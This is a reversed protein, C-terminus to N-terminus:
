SGWRSPRIPCDALFRTLSRASNGSNRGSYMQQGFRRDCYTVLLKSKARTLSVYLLRREDDLQEGQGPILEDEAASVIVGRSTLGKAKHMTMIAIGEGDNTPEASGVTTALIQVLERLNSCGANEITSQVYQITAERVMEDSIAADGFRSLAATLGESTSADESSEILEEAAQKAIELQMMASKIRDGFRPILSADETVLAAIKSFRERRKLALEFLAGIAKAGIGPTLQLWTRISLSDFEDVIIRLVSFFRRSEHHNFPEDTGKSVPIGAKRLADGIPGSYAGNRDNRLLVLIESPKWGEEEILQNCIAAIGEAEQSQDIFRLIEVVGDGADLRAILEKPERDYDLNAIFNALKIIERDCRMCTVLPFSASPEYEDGFKRIGDPFAHRFGYISQDDDGAVFLKSRCGVILKILGLDCSNLDQYEDVLVHDFDSELSFNSSQEISRKVQYVMESRMTYGYATRHAEWAGLFKPDIFQEEWGPREATLTDWDNSLALFLANVAKISYGLLVKLDQAIIEREEWDDAVRIPSPLKQMCENNHVLQRLAFAHITSIHPFGNDEASSPMASAVRARLEFAAARTFTLILIRSPPVGRKEILYLVRRTLALTKGTGPGALMRAHQGVFSAAAEQEPLLDDNWSM